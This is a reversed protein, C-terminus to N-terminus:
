RGDHGNRDILAVLPLGFDASLRDLTQQVEPPRAPTPAQDAPRRHLGAGFASAVPGAALAALQRLSISLTDKVGNLRVAGTAAAQSQHSQLREDMWWYTMALIAITWAVGVIWLM